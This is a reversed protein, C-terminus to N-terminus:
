RLSRRFPSPSNGDPATYVQPDAAGVFVFVLAAILVPLIRSVMTTRRSTGVCLTISSQLVMPALPWRVEPLEARHEACPRGQCPEKSLSLTQQARLARLGSAPGPVGSTWPRDHPPRAVDLRQAPVLEALDREVKVPDTYVSLGLRRSLRGVHTDVPLGPVNFANGLIVNATKRGVGPLKVLEAMTGPVQGGHEAVIKKCCALINRAKNRFFGTTRILDELEKGDAEAFAQVDPYRAFLAPTM